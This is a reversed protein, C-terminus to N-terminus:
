KEIPAHQPKGIYGFRFPCILATIYLGDKDPESTLIVPKDEACQRVEFCQDLVSLKELLPMVVANHTICYITLLAKSLMIPDKKDTTLNIVIPKPYSVIAPLIQDTNPYQADPMLELIMLVMGAGQKETGIVKYVGAAAAPDNPVGIFERPIRLLIKGDTTEIYKETLHIDQLAARNDDKSRCNDLAKYHIQKLMIKIM